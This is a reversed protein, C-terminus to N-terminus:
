HSKHKILLVARILEQCTKANEYSDAKHSRAVEAAAELFQAIKQWKFEVQLHELMEHVLYKGEEADEHCNAELKWFLADALNRVNAALPETQKNEFGQDMLKSYARQLSNLSSGFSSFRMELKRTKNLPPRPESSPKHFQSTMATIDNM